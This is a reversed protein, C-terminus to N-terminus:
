NLQNIIELIIQCSEKAEFDCIIAYHEETKKWFSRLSSVDNWNNDESLYLEIVRLAEEWEDDSFYSKKHYYDILVSLFSFRRKLDIEFDRCENAILALGASQLPEQFKSSERNVYSLISSIIKITKFYISFKRFTQYIHRSMKEIGSKSVLENKLDGMSALPNENIWWVMYAIAHIDLRGIFDRRESETNLIQGIIEDDDIFDSADYVNDTLEELYNEKLLQLVKFDSDKLAYASQAYLASLTFYISFSKRFDAYNSQMRKINCDAIEHFDKSFDGECLKDCQTMGVVTNLGTLKSRVERSLQRQFSSVATIDSEKIVQQFLYVVVDPRRLEDNFLAITNDSDSEQTSYLGPTDILDIERLYDYNLFAEVWSIKNRLDKGEDLRGDVLMTLADVPLEIQSDDKCHAIVYERGLPSFSVHRFVNVNYTLTEAGTPAVQRKVLANLLTSKGASTIGTFAIKLPSHLEKFADSCINQVSPLVYRNSADILSVLLRKLEMTLDSLIM